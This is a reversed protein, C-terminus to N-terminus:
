NPGFMTVQVERRIEFGLYEYLRIAATNDAYTHLFPRKGSDEIKECMETILRQAMGQGRFDPHVCVGSIETWGDFSMRQGAMAVLRDHVRIGIFDGLRPTNRFFPGPKTLTALALMEASDAPSLMLHQDDSERRSRRTAVMQVCSATGVISLSSRLLAENAEFVLVTANRSQVLATFDAIDQDSNGGPIAFQGVDEPLATATRFRLSLDAWSSKFAAAIPDDLSTAHYPNSHTDLM